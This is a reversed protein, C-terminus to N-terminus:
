VADLLSSAAKELDWSTAELAKVCV